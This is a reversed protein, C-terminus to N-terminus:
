IVEAVRAPQELVDDCEGTAATKIKASCANTSSRDLDTWNQFIAIKRQIRGDRFLSAQKVLFRVAAVLFAVM